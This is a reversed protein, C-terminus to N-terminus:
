TKNHKTARYPSKYLHVTYRHAEGRCLVASGLNGGDPFWNFYWTTPKDERGVIYCYIIVVM